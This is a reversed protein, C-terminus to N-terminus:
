KLHIVRSIHPLRGSFIVVFGSKRGTGGRMFLVKNGTGSIERADRIRDPPEPAFVTFLASVPWV